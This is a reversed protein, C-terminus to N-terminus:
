LGGLGGRKGAARHALVVHFAKKCIPTENGGGRPGSSPSLSVRYRGFPGTWACVVEERGGSRRSSGGPKRPRVCRVRLVGFWSHGAQCLEPQVCREWLDGGILSGRTKVMGSAASSRPM